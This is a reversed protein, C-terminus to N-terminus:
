RRVISSAITAASASSPIVAPGRSPSVPTHTSSRLIPEIPTWTERPTVVWPKAILTSLSRCGNSHTTGHPRSPTRMVETVLSVPWPSCRSQKRRRMASANQAAKSRRWRSTVGSRSRPRAPVRLRTLSAVSRMWTVRERALGPPM